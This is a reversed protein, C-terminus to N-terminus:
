RIQYVAVKKGTWRCVKKGIPEVMGKSTMETLRPACLGRENTPVLGKMHLAHACEKATMPGFEELCELIQKYRQEKNVSEHADHRTEITVDQGFRREEIAM